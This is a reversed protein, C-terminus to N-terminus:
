WVRDCGTPTWDRVAEAGRAPDSALALALVVPHAITHGYPGRLGQPHSTLALASPAAAVIAAADADTADTFRLDAETDRDTILMPPTHGSALIPVGAVAGAAADVVVGSDPPPVTELRTVPAIGPWDDALAWFLLTSAPRGDGLILGRGALSRRARSISSAAIGMRRALERVGSPRDPNLLADLAVDLAAGGIAAAVGPAAAARPFVVDDSRVVLGPEDLHLRGRRDWWSRGANSLERRAAETVVDAVLVCGPRSFERWNYADVVARGIVDLGDGSVGIM